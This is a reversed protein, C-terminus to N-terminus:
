IVRIKLKRSIKKFRYFIGQLLRGVQDDVLISVAVLNALETVTDSCVNPINVNFVRPTNM